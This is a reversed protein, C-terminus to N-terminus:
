LNTQLISQSNWFSLFIDPFYIYLVHRNANKNELSNLKYSYNKPTPPIEGRAWLIPNIM